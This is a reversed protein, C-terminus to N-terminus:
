VARRVCRFGAFIERVHPHYWNRFSGRMAWSRTAWSGGKLVRHQHDFYAHSYGRYPYSTFGPYGDFWSATWEWVNGMMDACGLSSTGAPYSDVPTTDGVHPSHNCDEATPMTEGWPYTQSQQLQPHWRAAKEWEAETPLRKGVFAAYAEAEYWNVGCVPHNWRDGRQGHWYLPQRVPHDQLWQWGATSWWRPNEYGCAQMFQWYQACTVPTRDIWYTDLEVIHVPRENDLADVSANGMEFSGAPIEIMTSDASLSPVPQCGSTQSTEIQRSNKILALVLAITEGHQSEHQLLWRWLREQEQLPAIELYAFVRSRVAALYQQIETLSPLHVRDRKPLIDAAFLHHYEPFQPKQGASHELLWLSETFAIHGLHWGVPSFDPHAQHCFTEHDIATFLDLTQQRCDQM